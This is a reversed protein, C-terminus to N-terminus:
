DREKAQLVGAKELQDIRNDDYGAWTGLVWRNHEGLAPAVLEPLDPRESFKFPFGPITVDGLLPDHVTRVMERELYYPHNLTEIPQLVPACPVRHAELVDLVEQDTAFRQMWSETLPILEQRNRARDRAKAYRPDDILEPHGIARCFNEWQRDLAIVVIWGEPGQFSGAPFGVGGHHGGRRPNVKGGTMAPMQINMEHSHFLCDIMSIDVWQGRGTRERHYLALALGTLAHVGASVDAFGVWVFLPPGEREGTMHMFGSFAQAITDYGVKHALPSNKRGFASISAMILGPNVARLAEYDLGRKELVGPGYNEVVVDAGRVLDRVVDLSEPRSFDACLSKKGRNQQVFYASRGDRYFPMVRTPDGGPAQEVKVIDAGLEAMLRTVTPGALYQTFDVVKVGELIRPVDADM